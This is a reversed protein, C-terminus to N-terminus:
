IVEESAHKCEHGGKGTEIQLTSHDIKFKKSLEDCIAYLWDDDTAADPRVLHATLAVSTTSLSWIHLDHVATVGPLSLLYDEIQQADIHRPVADLALDVSDRLLSWTGIAIIASIVLSIVPDLWMWGSVSMFIAAVVVGASVAADAAMHLYAGRINLDDKSGRMFMIATGANIAIGILAVWIVIGTEVDQPHIIRGIASWAIMVIAILLVVANVLSAMISTRGLGYTRNRSPRRRSLWIAGWALVLSFVDSFNHGADALLSLSHAYLGAVAEIVVFGLNLTIGIAFAKDYTAPGHHHGHGGHSHGHDHNCSHGHHHQGSM